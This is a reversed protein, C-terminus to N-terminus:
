FSPSSVCGTQFIGFGRNTNNGLLQFGYKNAPDLYMDFNLTFNKTEDIKESVNFVSYSDGDFTLERANVDVCFNETEGRVVKSTNYSDFSSILPSSSDVIKKIDISDTAVILSDHKIKKARTCIHEILSVGDIKKLLKNPFRTSKLRAPIVIRTKM